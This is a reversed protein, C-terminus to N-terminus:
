SYGGDRRGIERRDAGETAPRSDRDGGATRRRLELRPIEDDAGSCGRRRTLRDPHLVVPVGPGVPRFEVRRPIATLGVGEGEAPRHDYRSPVLTYGPHLHTAAALQDNRRAECVLRLGGRWRNRGVVREYEHYIEDVDSLRM